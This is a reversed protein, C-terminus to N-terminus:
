EMVTRIVVEDTDFKNVADHINTSGDNNLDILGKLDKKTAHPGFKDRENEYRPDM